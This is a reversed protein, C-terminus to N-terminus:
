CSLLRFTTASCVRGKATAETLSKLVAVHLRLAVFSKRWTASGRGAKRSHQQTTNEILFREKPAPSNARHTLASARRGPSRPEIGPVWLAALCERVETEPCRAKEEPRWHCQMCLTHLCTHLCFVLVCLIFIIFKSVNM